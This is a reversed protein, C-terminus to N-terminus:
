RLHSRELLDLHDAKSLRPGFSCVLRSAALNAFKAASAYSEKHNLAYLFAGAFMDGAGNTDVPDCPPVSVLSEQTGDWVLAGKKGLTIAFSAVQDRLVSAASTVSDKGTLLMSEEGNCFLIDAGGSILALFREQFGTAMAPDSLTLAVKVGAAKAIAQAKRAVEYGTDSSVLYGEIYLIQSNRLASPELQEESISETIGLYSALTREADPTIMVLCQGTGQDLEKAAPGTAVGIHEMESLYMDGLHDGAVKCAYFARDGFQGIAAMSNGASGGSSHKRPEHNENLLRLLREKEKQDVLTMRGKAIGQEALFDDSVEFETDILANGVGYVDYISM